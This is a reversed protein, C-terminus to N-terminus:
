AGRPTDPPAPRVEAGGGDVISGFDRSSQLRDAIRHLTEADADVAQDVARRLGEERAVVADPSVPAVRLGVALVLAAIAAAGTAAVVRRRRPRDSM